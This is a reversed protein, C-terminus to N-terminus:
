WLTGLKLKEFADESLYLMLILAKWQMEESTLPGSPAM